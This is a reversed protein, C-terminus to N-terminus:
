ASLLASVNIRRVVCRKVDATYLWSPRGSVDMGALSPADLDGLDLPSVVSSGPELIVAVRLWYELQLVRLAAEECAPELRLFTIFDRLDECVVPAGTRPDAADPPSLPTVRSKERVWRLVAAGMSDGLLERLLRVTSGFPGLHFAFWYIYRYDDRSTFENPFHYFSSFIAPHCRVQEEEWPTLAFTIAVDNLFGDYTLAQGYQETLETGALPALFHLQVSRLPPRWSRFEFYLNLTDALDDPTESPFGIILSATVGIGREWASRVSRKINEPTLGKKIDRQVAESGSEVGFFVRRCGAKVMLDLLDDDIRDTRASCAWEVDLGSDILQRCLEEVLRRNTTFMDHVFELRSNSYQQKIKRLEAIIAETSRFRFRRQFFVKTSCFTCKYPCGRGVEVSVGRDCEDIRAPVLTYDIPRIQDADILQAPSVQPPLLSTRSAGPPIYYLGPEVARRQERMARWLSAVVQEAEGVVIGDIFDFAAMLEGPVSSAQPGGLILPLSPRLRRIIRALTLTRPLTSCITSLGVMAVDDDIGLGGIFDEPPTTDLPMHHIDIRAGHDEKLITGVTMVGLPMESQFEDATSNILIV